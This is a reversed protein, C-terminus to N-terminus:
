CLLGAALKALLPGKSIFVKNKYCLLFAKKALFCAFSAVLKGKNSLVNEL